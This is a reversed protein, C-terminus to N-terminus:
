ILAKNRISELTDLTANSKIKKGSPKVLRVSGPSLKQEKAMITEASGVRTDRPIVNYRIAKRARPKTMTQPKINRKTPKRRRVPGSEIPFDKSSFGVIAAVDAPTEIEEDDLDPEDPLEVRWDVDESFHISGLKKAVDKMSLGKNGMGCALKSWDHKARLAAKSM